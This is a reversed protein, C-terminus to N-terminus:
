KCIAPLCSPASAPVQSAQRTMAAFACPWPPQQPDRSESTGLVKQLNAVGSLSAFVDRIKFLVMMLHIHQFVKTLCECVNEGVGRWFFFFNLIDAKVNKIYHIMLFVISYKYFRHKFLPYLSNLSKNSTFVPLYSCNRTQNTQPTKPPLIQSQIWTWTFFLSHFKSGVNEVSLFHKQWDDRTVVDM